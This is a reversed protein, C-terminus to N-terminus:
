RSRLTEVGPGSLDDLVSKRGTMAMLLSMAPGEVAPGDGHNWDTDTAKLALGAVRKKAGVILNSGKYFDLTMVVSADPYERKIGLPRRIDEGHILEEGLWSVKPGPPASTATALSRYKALTAAPGAATERVVQKEAMKTFSFGAGLISTFFSVPTMSATAVEHALLDHVTWGDCLSPTAWQEATLDDLDDALAAREAHVLPWVNDAM